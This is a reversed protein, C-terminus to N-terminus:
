WRIKANIAFSCKKIYAVFKYITSLRYLKFFTQFIILFNEIKM